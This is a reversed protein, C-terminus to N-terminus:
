FSCALTYVRVERRRRVRVPGLKKVAILNKTNM